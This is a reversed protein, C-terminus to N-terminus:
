SIEDIAKQSCTSSMSCHLDDIWVQSSPTIMQCM